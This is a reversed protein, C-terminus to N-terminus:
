NSLSGCDGARTQSAEVRGGCTAGYLEYESGVPSVMWLQDCSAFEGDRCGTYLEDLDNDDGLGYPIDDSAQTAACDAFGAATNEIRDGCTAGFREYKSGAASENWLDDCAVLDGDRCSHFLTDLTPDDGLEYPLEGADDAVDLASVPAPDADRIAAGGCASVLALACILLLQRAVRMSPHRCWCFMWAM